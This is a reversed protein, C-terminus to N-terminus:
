QRRPEPGPRGSCFSRGCGGEAPDGWGDDHSRLEAEACRSLDPRGAAVRSRRAARGSWRGRPSRRPRVRRSGPGPTAVGLSACGPGCVGQSPDRASLIVCICLLCPSVTGWGMVHVGGDHRTRHPIGLPSVTRTRCTSEGPHLTRMVSTIFSRPRREGHSGLSAISPVGFGRFPPGISCCHMCISRWWLVYVM